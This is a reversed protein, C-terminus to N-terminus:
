SVWRELPPPLVPILIVGNFYTDNMVLIYAKNHQM